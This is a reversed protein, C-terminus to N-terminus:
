DDILDDSLLKQWATDNGLAALHSLTQSSLTQIYPYPVRRLLTETAAKLKTVVVDSGHHLIAECLDVEMDCLADKEDRTASVYTKRARYFRRMALITKEVSDTSQWLPLGEIHAFLQRRTHPNVKSCAGPDLFEKRGPFRM